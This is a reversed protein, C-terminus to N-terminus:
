GKCRCTLDCAWLEICGVSPTSLTDLEQWAWDGRLFLQSVVVPRRPNPKPLLEGPRLWSTVRRSPHVARVAAAAAAAPAASSGAISSVAASAASAAAL